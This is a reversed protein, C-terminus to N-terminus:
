PAGDRGSAASGAEFLDRTLVAMEDLGKLQVEHWSHPLNGTRQLEGVIKGDDTKGKRQYEYITNVRCRGRDDLGLIEAVALIKRSGDALRGQQLCIEIASAVQGRLAVLPMEIGSMLAMTELRNLADAPSNAHLTTMSGGHGSTMAQLLDMAEGGRCEGVVIRDPRMRLCSHFLDRISVAGRGYRDPPRTEFYLVHEQQLQLESTDELVLIRQDSPILSSLVNLLTTKGSGTGGAVLMNKEAKVCIEIFERVEPTLAGYAVLDDLGLAKRFFKRIAICTGQRSAPPLVAHVRSGDPLRADFRAVDPGLRKGVFQAINTAAALLEEESVFRADTRYIRGGREIRVDQHGNIMVESVTPDDLFPVVPRLLYRISIEHLPRAAGEALPASM